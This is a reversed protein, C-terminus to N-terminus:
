KKDAFFEKIVSDVGECKLERAKLLDRYANDNDELALYVIARNFYPTGYTPQLSIARTYYAIAEPYNSLWYNAVGLHNYAETFGPNIDIAEELDKLAKRYKGMKISTVARYDWAEAMDENMEIAKDFEKIAAPYDSAKDLQLGKEIVQWVMSSSNSIDPNASYTATSSVPENAKSGTADAVLSNDQSFSQLAVLLASSLLMIKKM